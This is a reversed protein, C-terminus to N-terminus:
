WVAQFNALNTTALPVFSVVAGSGGDVTVLFGDGLEYLRNTCPDFMSYGQGYGGDTPARAVDTVAGTVPDLMALHTTSGSIDLGVIQGADNVEPNYLGQGNSPVTTFLLAGTAGDLADVRGDGFQYVRNAARDLARMGQAYSGPMPMPALDTVAGSAPDVRAVQEHGLDLALITGSASVVPNYLNPTALPTISLVAGTLGDITAVVEHGAAEGFQYLHKTLPDYAAFAQGVADVDLPGLDAVAGTAPDLRVV